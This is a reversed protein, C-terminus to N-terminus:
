SKKSRGVLVIPPLPVEEVPTEALRGENIPMTSLRERLRAARASPTLVEQPTAQRDMTVARVRDTHEQKAAIVEADFPCANRIVQAPDNDVADIYRQAVGAVGLAAKIAVANRPTLNALRVKADALRSRFITRADATSQQMPEVDAFFPEHLIGDIIEDVDSLGLEAAKWEVTEPHFVHLNYSVSNDDATIEKVVEVLGTSSNVSASLVRFSKM